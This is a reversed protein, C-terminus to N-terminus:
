DNEQKAMLTHILFTEQEKAKIVLSGTRGPKLIRFYLENRGTKVGRNACQEHAYPSSDNPTYCFSLETDIKSTVDFKVATPPASDRASDPSDIKLSLPSKESILTELMGDKVTIPKATDILYDTWNTGRLHTTTKELTDFKAELVMQELEPDPILAKEINRGVREDIVIDPREKEILAKATEFNMHKVYIVTEFQQSFYPRLFLGFSDHIFLVKYKKEECGGTYPFLSSPTNKYRPLEELSTMIQHKKTKCTEEITLDPATETVLGALNMLISLDGSFNYVWDKEEKQEIPTLDPLSEQARKIIERYVIDTGDNNWHSDTKLYLQTDKKHRLLLKQVDIYNTFSSNRAAFEVIQEYKNKGKNARIKAPLHEEYITEKNPIPLFIYQIGISELWAARDELLQSTKELQYDSFKISGLYDDISADGNFFYWNNSGVTVLKTPSVKFYKCLTYNHLKVIENRFGFHDDVYKEFSKPFNKFSEVSFAIEPFEALKRKESKSITVSESLLAIAMPISIFIAFILSIVRHSISINKM